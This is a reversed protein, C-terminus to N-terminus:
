SPTETSLPAPREPRRVSGSDTGSLPWPKTGDTPPHATVTGPATAAHCSRCPRNPQSGHGDSNSGAM